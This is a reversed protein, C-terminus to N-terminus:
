KRLLVYAAGGAGCVFGVALAVLIGVPTSPSQTMVPTEKLTRNEARLQSLERAVVFSATNDLYVGGDVEYLQGSPTIIGAEKVPIIFLEREVGADQARALAPTLLALLLLAQFRM